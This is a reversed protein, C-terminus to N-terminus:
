IGTWTTRMRRTGSVCCCRKEEAPSLVANGEGPHLILVSLSDTSPEPVTTGLVACLASLLVLVLLILVLRRNM